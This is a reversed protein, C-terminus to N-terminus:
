SFTLTALTPVSTVGRVRETPLVVLARTGKGLRSLLHFRGDHLEVLTKVLPLGLGASGTSAEIQWLQKFPLMVDDLAEEPIGPGEDRVEIVMHGATDLRASVLIDTDDHTYKVANGVLNILIQRIMRADAWLRALGVDSDVHVVIGRAAARATLLREVSRLLPGVDIESERLSLENAQICTIDLMSDITGLLHHAAEYITDAYDAQSSAARDSACLRMLEAYGVIANIPTRLEHGLNAVLTTQVSHLEHLESRWATAARAVLSTLRAPPVWGVPGSEAMLRVGDTLCHDLDPRGLLAELDTDHPVAVARRDAPPPEMAATLAWAM